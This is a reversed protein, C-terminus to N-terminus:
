VFELNAIQNPKLILCISVILLLISPIPNSSLFDWSLVSVIILTVIAAIIKKM